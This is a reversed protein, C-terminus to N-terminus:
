KGSCVLSVSNAVPTNNSPPKIATSRNSHAFGFVRPAIVTGSFSSEAAKAASVAMKAFIPISFTFESKAVKIRVMIMRINAANITTAVPFQCCGDM